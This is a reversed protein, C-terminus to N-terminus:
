SAVPAVPALTRRAIARELAGILSNVISYLALGASLHWLVLATVIAAVIAPALHPTGNPGTGSAAARAAFGTVVAALTALARDPTALDHIWLFGSRGAQAAGRIARYLAVAPPFQVLSDIAGRADVMSLGRSAYARQTAEAVLDPRGAHTKKIRELVPTLERMTHERALRRRAAPLTLPLLLVRVAASAVIIATGLGGGCWHALVFLSGRLLDIVNSWLM